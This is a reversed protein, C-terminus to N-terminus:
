ILRSPSLRARPDLFTFRVPRPQFSLLPNLHLQCGQQNVSSFNFLTLTLRGINVLKIGDDSMARLAQNINEICQHQYAPQKVVPNATTRRRRQQQLTEMLACLIRGDRLDTQLDVSGSVGLETTRNGLQELVWNAFTNHQMTIWHESADDDDDFGTLRTPPEAQVVDM